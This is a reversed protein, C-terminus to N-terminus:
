ILRIYNFLTVYSVEQLKDSSTHSRALFILYIQHHFCLRALSHTELPKFFLDLM